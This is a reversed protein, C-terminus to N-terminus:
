SSEAQISYKFCVAASAFVVVIIVVVVVVIIIIIVVVVVIIIIIIIIAIVVIIVFEIVVVIGVIVSEIGISFFPNLKIEIDSSTSSIFAIFIRGPHRRHVGVVVEYQVFGFFFFRDVFKEGPRDSVSVKEVGDPVDM